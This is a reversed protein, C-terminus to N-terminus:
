KIRIYRVEICKNKQKEIKYANIFYIAAEKEILRIGKNKLEFSKIKEHNGIYFSKNNRAIIGEWNGFLGKKVQPMYTTRNEYNTEIKIRYYRKM